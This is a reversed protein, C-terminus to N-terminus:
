SSSVGFEIYIKTKQALSTMQDHYEPEHKRQINFFTTNEDRLM